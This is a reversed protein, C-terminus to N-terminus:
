YRVTIVARRIYKRNPGKFPKGGVGVVVIKTKVGSALLYARVAAARKTAVVKNARIAAASKKKTESYSTVTILKAGGFSSKLGRITAKSRATLKTDGVPFVLAGLTVTNNVPKVQRLSRTKCTGDMVIYSTDSLASGDAATATLVMRHLGGTVCVKSPLKIESKFNGEADSFGGALRIPTSYMTLAYSSRARLGGGSM